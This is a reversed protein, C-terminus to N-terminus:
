FMRVKRTTTTTTTTTNTNTTTTTTTTTTTSTFFTFNDRHKLQAGRWSSTNPSHLYLEVWEKVEASAPPSNNAERRPRQVGLSLAGPLGNSLLSPPGWLPDPSPPSSFFNIQVIMEYIHWENPDLTIVPSLQHRLSHSKCELPSSIYGQFLNDQGCNKTKPSQKKRVFSCVWM